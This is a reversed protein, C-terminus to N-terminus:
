TQYINYLTTNGASKFLRTFIPQRDKPLISAIKSSNRYVEARKLGRSCFYSKKGYLRTDNIYRIFHKTLYNTLNKVNKVEQLTTYGYQWIRHIVDYAASIDPLNFFISHFHIAGRDQFEIGTIYKLKSCKEGYTQYNLQKIFKTFAKTAYQIDTINDKFTFTIFLPLREAQGPLRAPLNAEIIFKVTKRIRCLNSFCKKHPFPSKKTPKKPQTFDYEIPKSYQYHHLYNLTRILKQNTFM